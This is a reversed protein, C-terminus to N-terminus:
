SCWTRLSGHEALASKLSTHCVVGAGKGAWPVQPRCTATLIIVSRDETGCGTIRSQNVFHPHVNYGGLLYRHPDAPSEACM